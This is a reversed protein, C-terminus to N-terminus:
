QPNPKHDAHKAGFQQEWEGGPKRRSMYGGEGVQFAVLQELDPLEKWATEDQTFCVATRGQEQAWWGPYAEDSVFAEPVGCPRGEPAGVDFAREQVPDGVEAIYEYGDAPNLYVRIEDENNVYPDVAAEYLEHTIVEGVYAGDALATEVFTRMLVKETGTAEHRLHVREVHVGSPGEKSVHRSVVTHGALHGELAQGEHYGIAGEEDSRNALEAIWAGEPIESVTPVGEVLGKSLLVVDSIPKCYNHEVWPSRNHFFLAAYRASWVLNRLQELTLARRSAKNVVCVLHAPHDNEPIPGADFETGLVPAPRALTAEM